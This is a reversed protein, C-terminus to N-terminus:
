AAWSMREEGRPCWAGAAGRSRRSRASRGIRRSEVPLRARCSRDNSVAWVRAAGVLLGQGGPPFLNTRRSRDALAGAAELCLFLAAQCAPTGGVLCQLDRHHRWFPRRSMLRSAFQQWSTRCGSKTITMYPDSTPAPLPQNQRPTSTPTAQDVLAAPPAPRTDTPSHLHQVAPPDRQLDVRDPFSRTTNPQRSTRRRRPRRAPRLRAHRPHDLAALQDMPPGPASRARHPDQRSPVVRRDDMPPRGGPGPRAAARTALEGTANNRRILLWGQGSSQRDGGDGGGDDDISVWAWDYFRPGKSGDGASLRQWARRPLRATLADARLKGAQTHVPHSCAVALVYGVGRDELSQRLTPDGGYVEDGAVWRAGIGADLARTIMAAALAPKTAFKVEASVGAQERREADGAWAKPLYLERDILAHGAASAYTLYVAVQANEVRGATGTYQRQVGVTHTGKKVDGTEDMVLVADVEGLRDVVYARLDDRVGDTDWKAKCLLHQLGDPSDHGAHEALTWCNKVALDSMLGLVADRALRRPEVRAFRGAIRAVLGDFEV